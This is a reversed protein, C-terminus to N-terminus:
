NLPFRRNRLAYGDVLKVNNAQALAKASATFTGTTIVWAEDARYYRMAGAVEQIARNGVSGRYRKAQIVISRGDLHAILDAGQDGTAVCIRPKMAVGAGDFDGQGFM